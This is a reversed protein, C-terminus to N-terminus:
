IGLEELEEKTMRHVGAGNLRCGIINNWTRKISRKIPNNTTAIVTAGVVVTGIVINQKLNDPNVVYDKAKIFARKVVGGTAEAADVTADVATEAVTGVGDTVVEIAENALNLDAM